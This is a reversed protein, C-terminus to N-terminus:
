ILHFERWNWDEFNYSGKLELVTLELDPCRIEALGIRKWKGAKTIDEMIMLCYIGAESENGDKLINETIRILMCTRCSKEDTIDDLVGFGV